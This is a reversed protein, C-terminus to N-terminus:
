GQEYRRNYHKIEKYIFQPTDRLIAWCDKQTFTKGKSCIDKAEEESVVFGMPEYGIVSSETGDKYNIWFREILFVSRPEKKTMLTKSLQGRTGYNFPFMAMKAQQWTWGNKEMLEAYLDVVDHTANAEATFLKKFPNAIEAIELMLAEYEVINKVIRNVPVTTTKGMDIGVEVDTVLCPFKLNEM